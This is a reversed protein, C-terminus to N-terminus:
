KWKKLIASLLKRIEICNAEYENYKDFTIFGLDKCFDLQSRIEECSSKAIVIFRKFDATSSENRAYGEAINYAVSKSARRIQDALGGFQEVKPFVLSAKHIDLALAYAKQYAILDRFSTIKTEMMAERKENRNEIKRLKPLM